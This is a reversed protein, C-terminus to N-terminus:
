SKISKSEITASVELIAGEADRLRITLRGDGHERLHDKIADGLAALAEQRATDVGDFEAGDGDVFSGGNDFDFYFRPM